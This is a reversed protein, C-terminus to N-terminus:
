ASGKPRPLAEWKKWEALADKALEFARPTNAIVPAADSPFHTLAELLGAARALEDVLETPALLAIALELATKIDRRLHASKLFDTSKAAATVTGNREVSPSAM